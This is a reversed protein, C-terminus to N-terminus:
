SAADRRRVPFYHQHHILTTTLVEEPLELFAAAFFGAVVGPFEVLDAVEELLAAHDKLPM